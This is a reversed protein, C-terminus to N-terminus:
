SPMDLKRKMRERAEPSLFSDMNEAQSSQQHAMERMLQLQQFYRLCWACIMFHLKMEIKQRWPLKRDMAESAMRTVEKCPPLRHALWDVLKEKFRMKKAMEVISTAM